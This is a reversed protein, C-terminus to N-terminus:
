NRDDIMVKDSVSSTRVAAVTTILLRRAVLQSARSFIFDYYRGFNIVLGQM